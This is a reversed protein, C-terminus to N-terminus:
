KAIRTSGKDMTKTTTIDSPEVRGVPADSPMVNPYPTPLPSPAPGPPNPWRDQRSNGSGGAEAWDPTASSAHPYSRKGSPLGTAADRDGLSDGGVLIPNQRRRQRQLMLGAVIPVLIVILELWWYEVVTAAWPYGSSGQSPNLAAGVNGASHGTQGGLPPVPTPAITPTPFPTNSPTSTKTPIADKAPRKHEGGKSSSQAPAGVFGDSGDSVLVCQAEALKPRWASSLILLLVAVFLAAILKRIMM